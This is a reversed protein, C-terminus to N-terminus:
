QTVLILALDFAADNTTSIFQHLEVGLVNTLGSFLGLPTTTFVYNDYLPETGGVKDTLALTGSTVATYLTMNNRYIEQGNLYVVAGDDAKVELSASIIGRQEIFEKRFYSTIFKANVDAGYTIVTQINDLGTTDYGYTGLGGTIWSSVGVTGTVFSWTTKVPYTGWSDLANGLGVYTTTYTWQSNRPIAAYVPGPTSTAQPTPTPPTTATPGIARTPTSFPATTPFPRPTITPVPTITNFIPDATPLNPPKSTEAIAPATPLSLAAGKTPSPGPTVSPGFTPVAPVTVTAADPLKAVSTQTPRPTSTTFYPLTPRPQLTINLVGPVGVVSTPVTVTNSTLVGGLISATLTGAMGLTVLIYQRRRAM